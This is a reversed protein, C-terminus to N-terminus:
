LLLALFFWFMESGAKVSKVFAKLTTLCCLRICIKAMKLCTGLHM